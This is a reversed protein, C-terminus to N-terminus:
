PNSCAIENFEDGKTMEQMERQPMVAHANIYKSVRLDNDIPEIINSSTVYVCKTTNQIFSVNELSLKINDCAIM